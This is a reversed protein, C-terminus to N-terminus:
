PEPYWSGDPEKRIWMQSFWYYRDTGQVPMTCNYRSRGIPISTKNRAVFTTSSTQTLDTRGGPGYCVLQDLRLDKKTFELTLSPRLNDGVLPNTFVMHIPLPLTNVKNPFTDMSSYDGGMPFRPLAGFLDGPGFAGSEQGFGIYGKEEVIQMVDADYEGYPYAFLKPATGLHAEIERAAKDIDDAVRKHWADYSEGPDRRILHRHDYTHNGITAGATQMEKLEDWSLYDEPRGNVFKTAVFITFPWGREKLLPFARTYISAYADDFTIAAVHDPTPNGQRVTRVLKELPWIEFHHDALWTVQAAFREPAISTIYPTDDAVHHYQLIM